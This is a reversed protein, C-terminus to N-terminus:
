KNKKELDSVKKDLRFLYAFIGIGITLAVAIVVKIKGSEFFYEELAGSQAQSAFTILMFLCVIVLRYKM